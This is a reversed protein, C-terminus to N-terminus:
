NIYTLWQKAVENELRGTRADMLRQSAEIAVRGPLNKDNLFYVIASNNHQKFGIRTIPAVGAATGMGFAEEVEGRQLHEELDRITYGRIEHYRNIERIIKSEIMNIITRKTISGLITNSLPTVLRRGDKDNIVFAVNMAGAEEIQFRGDSSVFLPQEFTKIKADMQYDIAGSYNGALKIGGTGGNHSRVYEESSLIGIPTLGTGGFYPGSRYATLTFIYSKSPAVGLNNNYAKIRPRIYISGGEVDNPFEDVSKSLLEIIAKQFMGEPLKEIWVKKCSDEFRKRHDDLRFVALRGDHTLRAQLGEFVDQGYSDSEPNIKIPGYKPLKLKSWAGNQFTMIAMHKVHNEVNAFPLTQKTAM